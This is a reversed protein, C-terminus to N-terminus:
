DAAVGADSAAETRFLRCVPIGGKPVAASQWRVQLLPAGDPGADPAEMWIRHKRGAILPVTVMGEFLDGEQNIPGTAHGDISLTVDSDALVYFTYDGSVPPEIFGEWTVDFRDHSTEPNVIFALWEFYLPSGEEVHVLEKVGVFRHLYYKATLGSGGGCPPTGVPVCDPSPQGPDCKTPKPPAERLLCPPIPGGATSQPRKWTLDVFANGVSEYQEVQLRYSRGAQLPKQIALTERIPGRWWHDLLLEGDITLRSGDDSRLMFTYTDTADPTLDASLITTFFDTRDVGPDPSGMGWDFSFSSVSRTELLPASDTHEYFSARVSGGDNSCEIPETDGDADRGAEPARDAIADGSEMIADLSDIPDAEGSDIPVADVSGDLRVADVSADLRSADSGSVTCTQPDYDATPVCRKVSDCCTFAPQKCPCALGDLSLPSVCSLAAFFAPSFSALRLWRLVETLFPM